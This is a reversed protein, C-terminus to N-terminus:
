PCESKENSICSLNWVTGLGNHGIMSMFHVIVHRCLKASPLNREFAYTRPPQVASHNPASTARGSLGTQNGADVCHRVVM